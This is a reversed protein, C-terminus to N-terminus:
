EASSDPYTMTEVQGASNYSWQTIFPDDDITKSEQIMQGRADYSWSTSGSPDTMSTRHGKGNTGQDYAYSVNFAPNTPCTDSTQYYKDTLRNLNDYVMCINQGKADKQRLLNGM